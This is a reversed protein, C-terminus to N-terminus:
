EDDDELIRRNKRSKQVCVGDDLLSASSARSARGIRSIDTHTCKSIELGRKNELKGVLGTIFNGRNCCYNWKFKRRLKSTFSGVEGFHRAGRTSFSLMCNVDLSPKEILVRHLYDGLQEVQGGISCFNLYVMTDELGAFEELINGKAVYVNHPFFLKHWAHAIPDIDYIEIEYTDLDLGATHLAMLFCSLFRGHGDMTRLKTLGRRQMEAVLCKARQMQDIQLNDKDSHGHFLLPSGHGWMFDLWESNSMSQVQIGDYLQLKRLEDVQKQEVIISGKSLDLLYWIANVHAFRVMSKSLEPNSEPNFVSTM